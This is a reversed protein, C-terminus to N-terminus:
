PPTAVSLFVDQVGANQGSLSGTTSGVLYGKGQADVTGALVEDSGASGWQTTGIVAGNADLATIFADTGGASQPGFLVGATSGAAFVRKQADVGIAYITEAQPSGWVTTGLHNGYWDFRSVFAQPDGREHGGVYVGGDKDVAVAEVSRESWDWRTRSLLGGLADLHVLFPQSYRGDTHNGAVFPLGFPDMAIASAYGMAKEGWPNFGEVFSGNLNLRVCYPTISAQGVIWVTDPGVAVDSFITGSPVPFTNSGIKDGAFNFRALFGSTGTTGAVYVVGQAQDVAVGGVLEQGTNFIQTTKIVTGASNVVSLKAYRPFMESVPTITATEWGVFSTGQANVAVDRAYDRLPTGWQSTRV